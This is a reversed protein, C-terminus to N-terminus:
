LNKGSGQAGNVGLVLTEGKRYREMVWAALPIYIIALETAKTNPIQHERMLGLFRPRVTEWHRAFLAESILKDPWLARIAKSILM